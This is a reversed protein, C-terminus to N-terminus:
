VVSAVDKTEKDQASVTVTTIRRAFKSKQRLMPGYRKLAFPLPMMLIALFGILTSAWRPNLSEYMQGAFLPFGAGVLSRVVTSAALASAAIFLYADVMYNFLGLFIWIICFGMLLGSMMPAWLSIHPYSTWGFWFFAIAFGPAAWMCLDLRYEPPVPNPEYQKVLRVYVPNWYFVYGMVGILAGVFIPMFMLGSVGENLHHGLTFVIPYAEFTLYM